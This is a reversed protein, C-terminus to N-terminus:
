YAPYYDEGYGSQFTAINLNTQPFSNNM